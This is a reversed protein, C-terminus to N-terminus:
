ERGTNPNGGSWIEATRLDLAYFDVHVSGPGPNSWLIDFTLSDRPADKSPELGLGPLRKTAPPLAFFVLFM